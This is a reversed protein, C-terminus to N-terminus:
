IGTFDWDGWPLKEPTYDDPVPPMETLDDPREQAMAPGSVSFGMAAFAAAIAVIGASGSHMSFRVM